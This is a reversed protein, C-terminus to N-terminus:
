EPWNFTLKSNPTLTLLLFTVIFEHLSLSSCKTIIHDLYTIKTNYFANKNFNKLVLNSILHVHM